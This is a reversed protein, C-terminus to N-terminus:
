LSKRYRAFKGRLKHLEKEITKVDRVVNTDIGDLEAVHMTFSEYDGIVNSLNFALKHLKNKLVSNDRAEKILEQISTM